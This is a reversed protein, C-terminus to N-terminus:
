KPVLPGYRRLEPWKWVVVGLTVITAIGGFVVSFVPNALNSVFGSEFGGLENSTGIFLNNVASVRGRMADPTLMQVLTHRVIVSVNDAFGCVFLAAMSLWFIKSLGFVVTAGGFVLVAVALSRGAQRMPPRHAMILACALSGVPLAAQLLGLGVPGRHLIDKAFVPLLATAGGFLVAFLDLTIAALILKTNFVFRFGGLLSDLTVKENGPPAQRPRVLAILVFSLIAAAANIAFVPAASKFLAILAGAAAPGAVASFQFSSSSWNVAQPFEDRSVLQPLFSASASWQFTRAMGMSALCLYVWAVPAVRWTVFFLGAMGAFSLAQSLLIVNRRNYRDAVHGAPLTLVIMPLFESLGVFGLNLASGTREYLEWGVAVTLMQSAFSLLIRALLYYLFDRNRLIAYPNSKPAPEQTV